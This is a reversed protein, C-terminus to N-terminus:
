GIVIRVNCNAFFGPFLRGFGGGAGGDAFRGDAVSGWGHSFSFAFWPEVWWNRRRMLYRRDAASVAFVCVYRIIGEFISVAGHEFV